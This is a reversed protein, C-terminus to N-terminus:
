QYFYEKQAKKTQMIFWILVAFFLATVGLYVPGPIQSVYDSYLNIGGSILAAIAFLLVKPGIYRRYGDLDRCRKAMGQPVLVGERIEGKFMLLYWAYLIYVGAAVIIIDMIGFMSGTDM